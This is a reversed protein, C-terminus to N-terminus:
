FEAWSDESEKPAPAAAANSRGKGAAVRMEARPAAKVPARSASSARPASPARAKSGVNFQAILGSLANAEQTLSHSAATSQEVMSANQQTAQDMQNIATNVQSLGTAQEQAGSAIDTVVKNIEDVQDLIRRLAKGTEAVLEVGESVQATSTSILGKIEKAADASRQALARVESAVVAFGRGAEGARAAEVGANLALLNTQFAIEDIVGIIQNIQQASKEISGMAQVTRDVVRGTQEADSKATSVVERAHSAGEAAKKGTATIQDLAAATEELSAAQQETRKSLDDAATSIESSGSLITSANDAVVTMTERLAVIAANFDNELKKYAEPFGALAATLDRNALRSLGQGLQDVVAAQERATAAREAEAAARQREAAERVARAEEEAARAKLGNEKFILVAKAMTGVEDGRDTGDVNAELRGSALEGMNGALTNLPGTITGKVLAFAGALAAMFGAAVAIITTRIADNTQVSLADSSAKVAKQVEGLLALMDSRVEANIKAIAEAKENAATVDGDRMLKEIAAFEVYVGNQKKSLNDFESAYRPLGAKADAIMKGFIEHSAAIEQSLQTLRGADRTGVARWMIRGFDYVRAQARTLATAGFSEKDVLVTYRDDIARMQGAAYWISAGVVLGLAAFCGAVRSLISLNALKM